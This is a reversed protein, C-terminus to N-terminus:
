AILALLCLYGAFCTLLCDSRLCLFGLRRGYSALVLLGYSGLALLGHFGLCLLGNSGLPLLGYSGLPLLGYSGLAFGLCALWLFGLRRRAVVPGGRGDSAAPLPLESFVLYSGRDRICM